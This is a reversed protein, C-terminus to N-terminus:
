AAEKESKALAIDVEAIDEAISTCVDGDGIPDAKFAADWEEELDVRYQKLQAVTLNKLNM